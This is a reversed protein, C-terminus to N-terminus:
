GSRQGMSQSVRMPNVTMMGDCRQSVMVMTLRLRVDGYSVRVRTVYGDDNDDDDRGDQGDQLTATGGGTSMSRGSGCVRGTTTSRQQCGWGVRQQCWRATVVTEDDYATARGTSDDGDDVTGYGDDVM